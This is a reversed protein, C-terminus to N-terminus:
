GQLFGALADVFVRANSLSTRRASYLSYVGTVPLDWAPLLRVLRGESLAQAVAFEPFVAIGAGEALLHHILHNNDIKMREPAILACTEGTKSHTFHLQKPDLHRPILWTLQDLDALTSVSQAIDASACVVVKTEFMKRAPRTDNEPMGIRIALDFERDIPNDHGDSMDISLTVDPNDGQFRLLFRAFFPTALITPANVRLSGSAGGKQARITSLGTQFADLMTTIQDLYAAGNETLALRRTSRFLLQTGLRDELDSVLQSVFPASLGLTKAAARFSGDEVVAAFVASPRLLDV